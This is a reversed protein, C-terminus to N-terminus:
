LWNKKQLDVCSHSINKIYLHSKIITANALHQQQECHWAYILSRRTYRHTQHKVSWFRHARPSHLPSTFNLTPLDRLSLLPYSRNRKHCVAATEWVTGTKSHFTFVFCFFFQLIQWHHSSILVHFTSSWINHSSLQQELDTHSIMLQKVKKSRLRRTAQIDFSYIGSRYSKHLQVVRASSCVFFCEHFSFFFVFLSSVSEFNMSWWDIMPKIIRDGCMVLNQSIAKKARANAREARKALIM